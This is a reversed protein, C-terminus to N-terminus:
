MEGHGHQSPNNDMTYQATCAHYPTGRDIAPADLKLVSRDEGGDKRPKAAQVSLESCCSGSRGRSLDTTAVMACTLPAILQM